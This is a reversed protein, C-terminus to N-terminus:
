RGGGGLCSEAVSNQVVWLLGGSLCHNVVEQFAQLCVCNQSDTVRMGGRGGAIGGKQSEWRQRIERIERVERRRMTFNKMYMYIM